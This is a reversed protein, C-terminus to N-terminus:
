PCFLSRLTTRRPPYPLIPAIRPPDSGDTSPLLTMGHPRQLSQRLIRPPVIHIDHPGTPIAASDGSPIGLRACGCIAPFAFDRDHHAVWGLPWFSANFAEVGLKCRHTIWYAPGFSLVYFLPLVVVVVSAWLAAGPKNRDTM